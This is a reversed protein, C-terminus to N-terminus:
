LFQDLEDLQFNDPTETRIPEKISAQQQESEQKKLWRKKREQERREQTEKLQQEAYQRHENKKALLEELKVPEKGHKLRLQNAEELITQAQKYDYRNKRKKM